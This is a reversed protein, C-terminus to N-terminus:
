IGSMRSLVAPELWDRLKTILLDPTVPKQVYDDMGAELCRERDGQLAHATLALIAVREGTVKEEDRIMKTAEWGNMVPMSIDMLIVRPHLSRWVSVAASGNGVIRFSLGTMELTMLIVQQNIENDEAVLVDLMHTM